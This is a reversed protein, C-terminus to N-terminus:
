VAYRLVAALDAGDPIDVKRVGLVRAGTAM